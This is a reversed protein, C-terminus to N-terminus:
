IKLIKVFNELTNKVKKFNRIKHNKKTKLSRALTQM